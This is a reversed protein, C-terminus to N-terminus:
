DDSGIATVRTKVVNLREMLTDLEEPTAGTGTNQLDTLTQFVVEVAADVAAIEAELEDLKTNVDTILAMIRILGKKIISHLRSLACLIGVLIVLALITTIM